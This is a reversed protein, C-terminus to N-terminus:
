STAVPRTINQMRQTDIKSLAIKHALENISRVFAQQEADRVIDRVFMGDIKLVDVPLERLYRFSSFGSGFDDLAICFGMDALKRM